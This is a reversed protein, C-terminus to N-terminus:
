YAERCIEAPGGETPRYSVVDGAYFIRAAGHILEIGRDDDGSPENSVLVIGSRCQWIENRTLTASQWGAAATMRIMM